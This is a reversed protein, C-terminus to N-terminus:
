TALRSVKTDATAAVVAPAMAMTLSKIARIINKPPPRSRRSPFEFGNNNTTERKMIIRAGIAAISRFDAM